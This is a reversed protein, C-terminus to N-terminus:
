PRKAALRRWMVLFVLLVAALEGLSAFMINLPSFTVSVGAFHMTSLSAAQTRILNPVIIGAIFLTALLACAIRLLSIGIKINM